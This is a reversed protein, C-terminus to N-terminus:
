SGAIGVHAPATLSRLLKIPNNEFKSIIQGEDLPTTQAKIAALRHLDMEEALLNELNEPIKSM